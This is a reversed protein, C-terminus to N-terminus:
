DHDAAAEEARGGVAEISTKPARRGVRHDFAETADGVKTPATRTIRNRVRNISSQVVGPDPHRKLAEVWAEIAHEDDGLEARLKGLEYLAHPALEADPRTRALDEFAKLAEQKRDDLMALAQARLFMADDV